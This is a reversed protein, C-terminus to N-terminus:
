NTTAVVGLITTFRLKAAGDVGRQFFPENAHDVRPELKISLNKSPTIGVTLTGSTVRTDVNTGTTYGDQDRYYSGRAGLFLADGLEQRVTVDAGYWRKRAGPVDETAYNANFLLRTPGATVDFLVDFFHRMRRNAGDVRTVTGDEGKVSDAQEPGGMWGIAFLATDSPKFALQAGVSKGSNNDITANWGNVVMARITWQENAALDARLGTHFFPQGFFNLTSRTYTVNAQTDAVEAGFVTDFKGFVLTLAEIPKYAVFAQKVNALGADVDPQGNYLAASPGFRLAITGGV